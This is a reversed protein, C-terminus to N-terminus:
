ESLIAIRGCHETNATDEELRADGDAAVGLDSTAGVNLLALLGELVLVDAVVLLLEDLVHDLLELYKGGKM